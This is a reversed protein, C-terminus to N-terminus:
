GPSLRDPITRTEIRWEDNNEPFYVVTSRGIGAASRLSIRRKYPQVM